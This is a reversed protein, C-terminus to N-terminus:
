FSHWLGIVYTGGRGTNRGALTHGWGMQVRTQRAVRLVVSGQAKYLDFDSQANPNSNPSLPEGNRMGVISNFQGLLMVGRMVELGGTLDAGVQDAPAGTRYRYGAEADWFWHREGWDGGRGVLMRGELDQQHNGPAPNLDSKYCPATVAFQAAVAWRSDAGNLARRLGIEFDGLSGSNQRSSQDSYQLHAVPMDLVLTQRPSLGLELYDEFEIEQFRGSNAFPARTGNIGYADRARFLSTTMILEGHAPRDNWAGAYTQVPLLVCFVGTWVWRRLRVDVRHM